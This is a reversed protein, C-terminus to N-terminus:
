VIECDLIMVYLNSLSKKFLLRRVKYTHHSNSCFNDKEKTQHGGSLNIKRYKRTKIISFAM